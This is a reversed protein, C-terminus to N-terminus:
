TKFRDVWALLTYQYRGLAAAVFEGRWRDNGLGAMAVATWESDSEKRYLLVCSLMDHGDTFADAEVVVKEGVIRKIPYRGCDIEPAVGQIVVRSRGEQAQVHTEKKM